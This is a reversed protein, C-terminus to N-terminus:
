SAYAGPWMEKIFPNSMLGKVFGRWVPSGVVEENWPAFRTGDESAQPVMQLSSVDGGRVRDIVLAEFFKDGIQDVLDGATHYM